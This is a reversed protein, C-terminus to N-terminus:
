SEGAGRGWAGRGDVVNGDMEEKRIKDIKNEKKRAKL